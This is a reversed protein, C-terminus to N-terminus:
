QDAALPQVSVELVEADRDNGDVIANNDFWFHLSHVGPPLDVKFTYASVAADGRDLSLQQMVVNNVGMRMLIPPPLGHRLRATVAYAGGVDVKVLGIAEGTWYMVGSAGPRAFNLPTGIVVAQEPVETWWRLAGGPFQVGATADFLVEDALGRAILDPDTINAWAVALVQRFRFEAPWQAARQEAVQYWEFATQADGSRLFGDAASSMREPTLQLELWIQEAREGNGNRNYALALEERILLSEPSLRLATELAAVAQDPQDLAQDVRALYRYVLPKDPLWRQAALVHSRAEASREQLTFEGDSSLIRGAATLHWWGILSPVGFAFLAAVALFTGAWYAKKVWGETRL